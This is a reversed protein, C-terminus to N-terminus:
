KGSAIHFLVLDEGIQLWLNGDGANLVGSVPSSLLVGGYYKFAQENLNLKNIGCATGIWIIGDADRCLSLISDSNIGNSNSADFRYIDFTMTEIDLRDLGETYRDV